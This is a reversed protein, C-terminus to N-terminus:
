HAFFNRYCLPPKRAGTSRRVSDMDIQRSYSEKSQQPTKLSTHNEPESEGRENNSMNLNHLIEEILGYYNDERHGISTWDGIGCIQNGCIDTGCEIM